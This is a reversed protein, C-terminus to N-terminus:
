SKILGSLGKCSMPTYDPSAGEHEARIHTLQQTWARVGLPKTTPTQERVGRGPQRALTSVQLGIVGNAEQWPQIQM